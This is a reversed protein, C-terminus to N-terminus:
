LIFLIRISTVTSLQKKVQLVISIKSACFRLQIVVVNILPQRLVDRMPLFKLVVIRDQAKKYAIFSGEMPCLPAIGITDANIEANNLNIGSIKAGYFNASSLDADYLNVNELIADILTVNSLDARSLNVNILVAENFNSYGLYTQHLDTSYLKAGFMNVSELDSYHLDVNRLVAKSLNVNSLDTDILDVDTLCAQKGKTSDNLWESHKDLISKLEEKTLTQRM